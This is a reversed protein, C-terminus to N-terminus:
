FKYSIGLNIGVSYLYSKVPANVLPTIAHKFVPELKFVYKDTLDYNLGAGFLLAFNLKEFNPHTVTSYKEESGDKREIIATTRQYLFTNVSAGASVFLKVKGTILYYNIKLPIDLFYYHDVFSSKSPIKDQNGYVENALEYKKTREGKDSFLAEVEFTCKNSLQYSFSIGASYGFKPIELTDRVDKMWKGDAGSRLTRYALEPSYVLGLQMKEANISDVKKITDGTNCYLSLPLLLFFLGACIKNM